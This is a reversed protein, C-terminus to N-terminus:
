RGMEKGWKVREKYAEYEQATEFDDADYILKRPGGEEYLDQYTLWAPGSARSFDKEQIDLEQQKKGSSIEEGRYRVKTLYVNGLHHIQGQCSVNVQFTEMGFGSIWKDRDAARIYYKNGERSVIEAGEIERITDECELCIEWDSIELMTELDGGARVDGESLINTLEATATYGDNEKRDFVLFLDVGKASDAVLYKDIKGYQAGYDQEIDGWNIKTDKGATVIGMDWSPKGKKCEGTVSIEVSAGKELSLDEGEGCFCYDWLEGDEDEWGDEYCIRAGNVSKIQFNSSIRFSWHDISEGSRNILRLKGSVVTGQRELELPEAKYDKESVDHLESKWYCIGPEHAGNPCAVEVDFRIDDEGEYFDRNEGTGRITYLNGERSEIEAGVIDTIEDEMELCLEWNPYDDEGGSDGYGAQVTARYGQKTREKIRFTVDVLYGKAKWRDPIEVPSVSAGSVAASTVAGTANGGSGRAAAREAAEEAGNGCATLFFCCCIIAFLQINGKKMVDSRGRKRHLFYTVKGDEKGM